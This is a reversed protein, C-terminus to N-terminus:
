IKARFDGWKVDFGHEALALAYIGRIAALDAIKAEPGAHRKVM